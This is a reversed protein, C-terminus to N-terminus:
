NKQSNEKSSDFGYLAILVFCFSLRKRVAMDSLDMDLIDQLKAIRYPLSNRHVNMITATETIRRENEIYVRLLKFFDKGHLKDQQKLYYLKNHYDSHYWIDRINDGEGTFVYPFLDEFRHVRIESNKGEHSFELESVSRYKLALKVQKFGYSIDSLSLIPLSIGCDADYKQLFDNLLRYENESGRSDKASISHDAAVINQQYNILKFRPFINSFESMM